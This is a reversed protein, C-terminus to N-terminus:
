AAAPSCDEEGSDGQCEHPALALLRSDCGEARSLCLLPRCPSMGGTMRPSSALMSLHEFSTKRKTKRKDVKNKSEILLTTIFHSRSSHENLATAGVRRGADRGGRDGEAARTDDGDGGACEGGVGYGACGCTMRPFLCAHELARFPALRQHAHCGPLCFKGQVENFLKKREVMEAADLGKLEAVRAEERLVAEKLLRV